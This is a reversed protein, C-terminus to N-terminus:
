LYTQIPVLVSLEPSLTGATTILESETGKFHLPFLVNEAMVSHLVSSYNTPLPLIKNLVIVCLIDEGPQKM